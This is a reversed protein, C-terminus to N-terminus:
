KEQPQSALREVAARAPELHPDFKLAQDYHVLAETPDGFRELAAGVNYHALARPGTSAFTRLADRAKGNAAQALGLNNRYRVQSPDIDVARQVATLAGALDGTALLLYGYNNWASALSNDLETARKCADLAAELLQQDSRLICMAEYAEANKPMRSIAASLLRDAEDHLGEDRMAMGQLLDLEPKDGVEKRLDRIIDLALRTNGQELLDRALEHRVTQKDTAWRPLERRVEAREPEVHRAACASALACVLLWPFLTSRM